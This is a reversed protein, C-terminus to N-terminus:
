IIRKIRKIDITPEFEIKAYDGVEDSDFSEKKLEAKLKSFKGDSNDAIITGEYLEKYYNISVEKDFRNEPIYRLIMVQRDSFSTWLVLQNDDVINKTIINVYIYDIKNKRFSNVYFLEYNENKIKERIIQEIIETFIQSKEETINVKMKKKGKM